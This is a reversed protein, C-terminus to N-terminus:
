ASGGPSTAGQYTSRQTQSGVAVAAEGYVHSMTPGAIASYMSRSAIGVRLM